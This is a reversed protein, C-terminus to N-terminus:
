GEESKRKKQTLSTMEEIRIYKDARDLLEDLNHPPRGAISERFQRHLLNQQIIGALVVHDIAPIEQVAQSFCQVYERLSEHEQQIITFLYAPTRPYKRNISFQDIFKHTLQEMSEVTGAPLQNFWKLSNGSLTTRFIKCYAADSLSYLDEKAIFKELHDHPDGTGEYDPLQPIMVGAPLAEALIATSFLSKRAPLIGILSVETLSAAVYPLSTAIPISSNQQRTPRHSNPPKPTKRKPVIEEEEEPKSARSGAEEHSNRPHRAHRRSVSLAAKKPSETGNHSQSAHSPSTHEVGNHATM